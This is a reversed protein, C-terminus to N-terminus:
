SQIQVTKHFKCSIDPVAQESIHPRHEEESRSDSLTDGQLRSVVRLVYVSRYVNATLYDRFDANKLWLVSIRTQFNFALYRFSLCTEILRLHYSLSSTNLSNINEEEASIPITVLFYSCPPCNQPVFGIEEDCSRM